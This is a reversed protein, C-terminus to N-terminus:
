LGVGDGLREGGCVSFVGSGWCECCGGSKTLLAEIKRFFVFKTKYFEFYDETRNLNGGM